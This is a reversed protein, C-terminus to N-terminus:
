QTTVRIQQDPDILYTKAEEFFTEDIGMRKMDQKASSSLESVKSFLPIDERDLLLKEIFHTTRDKTSPLASSTQPGGLCNDLCEQLKALDFIRATVAIKYAILRSGTKGAM